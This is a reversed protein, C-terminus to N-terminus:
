YGITDMKLRQPWQSRHNTNRAMYQAALYRLRDLSEEANGKGEGIWILTSHAQRYISGMIAVQANREPINSQDICLVDAWLRRREAPRRFKRLATFLNYRIAVVQGDCIILFPPEPDGWVYSLAEYVPNDDLSCHELECHISAEPDEHPLLVLIRIEKAEARLPRYEITRASPRNKRSTKHLISPM